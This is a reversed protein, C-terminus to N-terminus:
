RALSPIFSLRACRTALPVPLRSHPEQQKGQSHADADDANSITGLRLIIGPACVVTAVPVAAARIAAECGKLLAQVGHAPDASKTLAIVQVLWRGSWMRQISDLPAVRILGGDFGAPGRIHAARILDSNRSLTIAAAIM